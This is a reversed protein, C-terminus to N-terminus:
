RCRSIAAATQVAGRRLHVTGETAGSHLVSPVVALSEGECRVTFRQGDRDHVMAEGPGTRVSVLACRPHSQLTEAALSASDAASRVAQHFLIVAADARLAQVLCSENVVLHANEVDVAPVPTSAPYRVCDAVAGDHWELSVECHWASMLKSEPLREPSDLLEPASEAPSLGLLEYLRRTILTAPGPSGEFWAETLYSPRSTGSGADPRGAIAARLQAAPDADRRLWKQSSGFALQPSGPAMEEFGFAALLVPKNLNAAYFTVSGADGVICDAAIMAARWGEEAPVMVLGNRLLPRLFALLNGGRDADINPHPIFAIAFEDAPLRSMLFAPLSRDSASLSYPGWTSSVVVLKQHAEIGLAERYVWRLPTSIRLREMCLDGTLEAAPLAEPCDRALQDIAAAGPMAMM